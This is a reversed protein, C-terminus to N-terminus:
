FRVYVAFFTLLEVVKVDTVKTTKMIIELVKMIKKM